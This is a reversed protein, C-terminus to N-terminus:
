NNIIKNHKIIEVIGRREGEKAMKKLIVEKVKRM